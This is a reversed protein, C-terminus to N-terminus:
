AVFIERLCWRVLRERSVISFLFIKSFFILICDIEFNNWTQHTLPLVLLCQFVTTQFYIILTQFSQCFTPSLRSEFELGGAGLAPIMGRSWQAVQHFLSNRKQLLKAHPLLGSPCSTAHKMKYNNRQFIQWTM